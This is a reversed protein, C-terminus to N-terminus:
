HAWWGAESEWMQVWEDQLGASESTSNTGAFILLQSHIKKWKGRNIFDYIYPCDNQVAINQRIVKLKSAKDRLLWKHQQLQEAAEPGPQRALIQKLEVYLKEKEKLSVFACHNIILLSATTWKIESSAELGFLSVFYTSIHHM